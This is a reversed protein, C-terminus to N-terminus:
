EGHLNAFVAPYYLNERPKTVAPYRETAETKKAGMVQVPTFM